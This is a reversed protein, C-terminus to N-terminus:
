SCKTTGPQTFYGPSVKIRSSEKQQWSRLPVFKCPSFQHLKIRYEFVVGTQIGLASVCPFEVVLACLTWCQLSMSMHLVSGRSFLDLPFCRKWFRFQGWTPESMMLCRCWSSSKAKSVSVYGQGTLGLYNSREPWLKIQIDLPKLVCLVQHFWWSLHLPLFFSFM